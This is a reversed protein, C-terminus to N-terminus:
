WSIAASSDPGRMRLQQLPCSVPIARTNKRVLSGRTYTRTSHAGGLSTVAGSSDCSGRTRAIDWLSIRSFTVEEAVFKSRTAEKRQERLTGVFFVDIADLAVKKWRESETLQQQLVSADSSRTERTESFSSMTGLTSTLAAHRRRAGDSRLVGLTVDGDSRLVGLTVDGDSRLGPPKM